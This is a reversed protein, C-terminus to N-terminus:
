CHCECYDHNITRITTTRSTRCISVTSTGILYAVRCCSTTFGICCRFDTTCRISVTCATFNTVRICAFVSLAKIRTCCVGVTGFSVFAICRELAADTNSIIAGLAVVAFAVAAVGDGILTLWETCAVIAAGGRFFATAGLISLVAQVGIFDFATEGICVASSAFFAVGRLDGALTNVCTGLGTCIVCATFAVGIALQTIGAIAFTDLTEIVDVAGVSTIDTVGFAFTFSGRATCVGLSAIVVICVLAAVAGCASAGGTFLGSEVAGCVVFGAAVVGPGVADFVSFTGDDPVHGGLEDGVGSRAEIEGGTSVLAAAVGVTGTCVFDTTFETAFTDWATAAIAVTITALSAVSVPTVECAFFATNNTDGVAGDLHLEVEVVWAAVEFISFVIGFVADHFKVISASDRGFDGDFASVFCATHRLETVTFFSGLAFGVGEEDFVGVAVGAVATAVGWSLLGGGERREKEKGFRGRRSMKHVWVKEYM